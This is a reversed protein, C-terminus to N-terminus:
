ALIQRGPMHLGPRRGAKRDAAAGDALAPPMCTGSGEGALGSGANVGRRLIAM